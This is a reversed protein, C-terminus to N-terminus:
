PAYRRLHLCEARKDSSFSRWCRPSPKGSALTFSRSRQSRQLERCITIVKKAGFWLVTLTASSKPRSGLLYGTSQM